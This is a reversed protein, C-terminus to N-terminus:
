GMAFTATEIKEPLPADIHGSVGRPEAASAIREKSDMDKEKVPGYLSLGSILGLIAIGLAASMTGKRMRNM